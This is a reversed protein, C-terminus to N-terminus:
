ESGSEGSKSEPPGTGELEVIRDQVRYRLVSDVQTGVQRVAQRYLRLATERDGDHLHHEALVLTTFFPESKDMGQRFGGAKEALSRGDRLFTMALRERSDANDFSEQCKSEALDGQGRQWLNLIQSFAMQKTLLASGNRERFLEYQVKKLQADNARLRGCLYYYTCSFGVVILSLLGVVLVASPVAHKRVLKRLIYLASSRAHIPLGQLWARIDDGMEAASHYRESPDKSLAKLLIAEVDSDFRGLVDKPRIPDDFQIHHLTQITTGSVDYPFEHTLVQYFVVGLAYVDSRTDVADSRGSAQEPSMYLLTGKIEGTISVMSPADGLRGAAKALGFDLLHPEGREDVLVNSPKLDRHIVGRRHAHAVADCVRLLLEMTARLPIKASAVYQDLPLGRIYEMSFYYQGGAIGSDRIHVINPHELGSILDVEREFLRRAKASALQGPPLVKLAVKSKTAKHLAKFVLAQGGRPLEELIQYGEFEPAPERRPPAERTAQDAQQGDPPLPGNPDNSRDAVACM